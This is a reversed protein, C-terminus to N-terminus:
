SRGVWGDLRPRSSGTDTGTHYGGAYGYYREDLPRVRNLVVGYVKGGVRQLLRKSDRVAERPTTSAKVVLLVGDVKSAIALGDPYLAIPPSDVIVHDFSAHLAALVDSMRESGLLELAQTSDPGAPLLFIGSSEHERALDDPLPALSTLLSSLGDSNDFGLISHLRPRRLDADVLVARAGSKVLSAALNVATTTKGEHPHSSTVLWTKGVRGHAPLLMATRLRRYDEAFENWAGRDAGRTFLRAQRPPAARIAGLAPLDLSEEVDVSSRLTHNWAERGIAAGSALVLGFLFAAGVFPLRWPGEPEAPNPALAYDAVSANNSVAAQALDNEGLRTLAEDLLGQKTKVEQQMLRYTVAAQNQAQIRGRQTEFDARLTAELAQAQQYRTRMSGLATTAAGASVQQANAELATIQETIERVEPWQETVGVLLQARKARLEALKMETDALVTKAGDAGLSTASEPRQAELLNAEALKRDNEAELLQKNLSMLRDVVLNQTPELSLIQHDRGYAILAEEAQRVEGQLGDIRRALYANTSAGSRSSRDRNEAVFGDAVANAISSALRPSQHQVIIDVLRTERFATRTELVPRVSIRRQLEAVIPALREADALASPTAVDSASDPGGGLYGLRFLRRLMRGGRTIHRQFVQDHELDLTAIARRLVAPSTILQLQTNFYAPDTSVMSGPADHDDTVSGPREMAIEVRAKTAYFDPTLLMMAAVPLSVVAVVGAILYKHRAIMGLYDRLGFRVPLLPVPTVDIPTAAARLPLESRRRDPPFLDQSM